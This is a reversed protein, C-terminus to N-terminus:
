VEGREGRVCEAECVCPGGCVCCCEGREAVRREVGYLVRWARVGVM